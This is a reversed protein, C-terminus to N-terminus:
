GVQAVDVVDKLAVNKCAREYNREIHRVLAGNTPFISRHSTGVREVIPEFHSNNIWAVMVTRPFKRADFNGVGCYLTATTLDFFLLNLRLTEMTYAIAWVDAWESLDRMAACVDRMAPPSTVGKGRWFARWRHEGGRLLRRQLSRRLNHGISRQSARSHRHFDDANLAYALSHYFCSGNAHVGARFFSSSPSSSTPFLHEVEALPALEGLELARVM